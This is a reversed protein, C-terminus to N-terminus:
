TPHELPPSAVFPPPFTNPEKATEGGYLARITNYTHKDDWVKQVIKCPMRYHNRDDSGRLSPIDVIKLGLNTKAKDSSSLMVLPKHLM